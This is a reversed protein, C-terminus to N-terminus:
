QTSSVYEPYSSPLSVATLFIFLTGEISLFCDFLCTLYICNFNQPFSIHCIFPSTVKSPTTLPAVTLLHSKLQSKFWAPMSILSLINRASWCIWLQLHTQLTWPVFLGTHSSHLSCHLTAPSSSLSLPLALANVAIYTFLKSTVKPAFLFWKFIKLLFTVNNSKYTLNSLM